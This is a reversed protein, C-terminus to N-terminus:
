KLGRRVLLAEVTPEQGRYDKYQQMVERTGGRSLIADRYKAGNSETLGGQNRMHAFADAALVESWLYAYYGASYGGSWVHAFYATRYRPPVPAYDMGFSKLLQKEFAVVDTPVEETSISHWGLDLLAASLYELTEYGKNFKNAAISKDLLTKPITEGTKFHRAYNNLVEPHIAWDEHFTSPFEVFDRPVSTGSLAPYEVSSFLGHVGHGLEHFMTTVDDLSLLTPEGAAPMPINMVNVVVPLQNLLRSQAIFGDMWAGGQKADRHFYDAYFLGIQKGDAGLVDFVRVTPHYTPLDKREKFQIGYLKGYTYFVGNQLVSEMEFYPKVLSEDIQYKEARVKESYYEWDWPELDGDIGDKKMFRQIDAAELKAKALVGPALDRLMKFAAEPNAAMQNELTFAAHSAYGLLKAREARLRAMALVLGQNDLGGAEGLGRNASALWVRKRLERNQLSLLVPQRTTNTIALLYKGEHGKATAAEKAAAIDAASMGELQAVDEVVVGREKTIALLNQQFQTTLSSLEENIARVRTQQADHLRAGARVFNEYYEKLLRQQEENWSQTTRQNWLTEVRAFLKKNLYIDDSHSALRPAIKEEIEQISEDTNATSMNFFVAQVRELIEGSKELSILTNAFTPPEKQEAIEKTQALQQAIGAEFAPLYHEHKIKAFDPAHLALKSPMLFPNDNQM